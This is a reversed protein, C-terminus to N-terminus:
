HKSFIYSAPFFLWMKHLRFIFFVSFHECGQKLINTGKGYKALVTLLIALLPSISINSPFIRSVTQVSIIKKNGWCNQTNASRQCSFTLSNFRIIYPRRLLYIKNMCHKGTSFTQGVFLTHELTSKTYILIKYCIWVFENIYTYNNNIVIGVIYYLNIIIRIKM